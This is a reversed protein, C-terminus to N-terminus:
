PHSESRRSSALPQIQAAVFTLVFRLAAEPSAHPLESAVVNEDHGNHFHHPHTSIQPDHDANDWRYIRGAIVGTQWHFAYRGTSFSQIDLFSDEM